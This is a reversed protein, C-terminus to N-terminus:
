DQNPITITFTTGVGVKSVLDVEGGMAETQSKVLYLGIGRGDGDSTLRKFAQFVQKLHREEIGVGNDKIELVAENEKNVYSSINIEPKRDPSSYKLSNAILNQLISKINRRRGKIIKAKLSLSVKAKHGLIEGELGTLIKELVDELDVDDLQQAEEKQLSVVEILGDLTNLIRQINNELRTLVEDGTTISHRKVLINLLGQLNIVPARLDHTAVFAVQELEQNIRELNESKEKLNEEVLRLKDINVFTIVVGDIVDESSRYPIMRMLYFNKSKNRVEREIVELKRLVSKAEGELDVNVLKNNLDSIPRGVDNESVNIQETIASTYKRINLDKDLFITGIETSQLLNNLDDNAEIMETVKSQFETNVSYLEENVSQLEENTSQLEENSAILEENTAQLEENSTELEEVTNQLYEKTEKLEEELQNVRLDKRE